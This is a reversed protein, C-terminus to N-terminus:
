AVRRQRGRTSWAAFIGALALALTGPVPVQATIGYAGVIGPENAFPEELWSDLALLSLVSQNGFTDFIPNGDGDLPEVGAFAIAIYYTGTALFLSMRAQGSGGSEDDMAIGKGEWDFLYLVPDAILWPDFASGTFVTFKDTGTAPAFMFKYMDVYDPGASPELSIAGNIQLSGSTNTLTAGTDAATGIMNGADGVETFVIAADARGLLSAAFLGAALLVAYLKM